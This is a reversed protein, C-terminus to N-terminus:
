FSICNFKKLHRLLSALDDASFSNIRIPDIGYDLWNIKNNKNKREWRKFMPYILHGNKGKSVECTKKETGHWKIM